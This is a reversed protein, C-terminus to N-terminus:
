IRHCEPRAELNLLGSGEATTLEGKVIVGAEPDDLDEDFACAETM